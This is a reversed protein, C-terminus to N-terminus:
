IPVSRVSGPPSDFELSSLPSKMSTGRAGERAVATWLAWPRQTREQVRGVARILKVIEPDIDGHM